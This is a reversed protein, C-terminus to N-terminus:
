YTILAHVPGHGRTERGNLGPLSSSSPAASSKAAPSSSLSAACGGGIGGTALLDDALLVTEGLAIADQHIEISNSGYELSYGRRTNEVAAEGKKRM